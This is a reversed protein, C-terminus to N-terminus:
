TGKHQLGKSSSKYLGLCDDMCVPAQTVDKEKWGNPSFILESFHRSNSEYRAFDNSMSLPLYSDYNAFYVGV